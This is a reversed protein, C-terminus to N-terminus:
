NLTQDSVFVIGSTFKKKEIQDKLYDTVIIEDNVVKSLKFILYNGIKDKDISIVEATNWMDDITSKEFDLCDIRPPVALWYSEQLNDRKRFLRVRQYYLNKIQLEDFLSKLRESILPVCNMRDFILDPVNDGSNDDLIMEGIKSPIYQFESNKCGYIINTDLEDHCLYLFPSEIVDFASLFHFESM